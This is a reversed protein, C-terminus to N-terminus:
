TKGAKAVRFTSFGVNRVFRLNTLLSLRLLDYIQMAGEPLSFEAKKSKSRLLLFAM